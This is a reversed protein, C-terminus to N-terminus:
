DPKHYEIAVANEDIALRDCHLLVADVEAVRSQLPHPEECARLTKSRPTMSDAPVFEGKM